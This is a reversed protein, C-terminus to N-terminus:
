HVRPGTRYLAMRRLAIDLNLWAGTEESSSRHHLLVLALLQPASTDSTEPVVAGDDNMAALFKGAFEPIDRGPARQPRKAGYWDLVDRIEAPVDELFGGEINTLSTV